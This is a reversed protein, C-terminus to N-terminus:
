GLTTSVISAGVDVLDYLEVADDNSLRVCGHSAATGLSSLNETGHFRIAPASWNLARLGLPNNPGPGIQAPMSSGWGDPAPNVWTPMYRKETVSYVGTPTPYGPTGIAVTWSGTIEGDQYLYLKKENHRVLLVQDFADSTVEPKTVKYDIEATDGGGVMAKRLNRTSRQADVAIGTREKTIEVWGTSYDIAADVPEADLRDAIRAVLQKAGRRPYTIAVEREFGVSEDLFRMGVKDMFSARESAKMAAAVVKRADGRAGLERPTTEWSQDKYTLSITRDLQPRIEARVEKLAEPATLGSVDIGAVSTGPLFKGAYSNSYDYTAYAVGAAGLGLLGVVIAAAITLRKILRSRKPKAVVDPEAPSDGAILDENAKKFLRM